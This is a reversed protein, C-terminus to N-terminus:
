SDPRRIHALHVETSCVTEHGLLVVFHFGTAAHLYSSFSFCATHRINPLFNMLLFVGHYAMSTHWLGTILSFSVSSMLIYHVSVNSVLVRSSCGNVTAHM